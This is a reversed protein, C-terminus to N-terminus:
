QREKQEIPKTPANAPPKVPDLRDNEQVGPQRAQQEATLKQIIARERQGDEPRNLRYYVSALLVHAEVFDPYEKAVAELLLRADAPKGTAAYVAGLHYRAYSDRPRLRAARTLYGLAEDFAKDRRLLIGIYLNAEFDNPNNALEVKFIAKAKEPDGLRMLARGYWTHLGPLKPNLEIARELEKMAGAGDDALLLISGLLMRAEASDEGHFVRDILEQGRKMQGDGVLASGLLYAVTRDNADAEALPTLLEIVPKYQGLRVDCDALLLTANRREPAQRPAAALFSTLEAAAETFWAAKYYALALNFRITQNRTDRALAQKYQAIADEYRGLRSYAAGLNSRVDARDPHAALIAQYGRIAGEIDGAQHLETARAFARDVDAPGAQALAPAAQALWVCAVLSIMAKVFQRSRKTTAM